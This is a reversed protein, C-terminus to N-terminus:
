KMDLKGDSIKRDKMQVKVAGEYPQQDKDSVNTGVMCHVIGSPIVRM